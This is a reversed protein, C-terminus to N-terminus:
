NNRWGDRAPCKFNFHTANYIYKMDGMLAHYWDEIRTRKRSCEPPQLLM